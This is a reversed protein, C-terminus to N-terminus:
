SRTVKVTMVGSRDVKVVRITTGTKPVDVGYWGPQYRGTHEGSGHEDGPYWWDLTDDFVPQAAQGRLVIRESNLHTAQTSSRSTSFAADYAMTRPRLLSGDPAHRLVSNADVPLIEGSGPHDGVNNDTQSTDWYSILAGPDYKFFEVWNPRKDLFGFNYVNALLRDRGVYQRNDVFYANLFQQMESGTTTRFGDLEWGTEGEEATGITTGGLTVNDVQFGSLALAGDTRYRWRIATTGAPVTATLDVWAGDTTGSIGAGSDNLGSQDEEQYSESTGVPTWTEGDSTAELFAYDWGDEIEYRVKATLAGGGDVARTATNDLDNGSDSYFYREGCDACAAGLELPVEKDPLQVVLGNAQSGSTSQGPRLKFTGVRGPRVTDYDLWGLQFKDWASMPMPRDGIGPDGPATGRSQSMLTWFGTSNEAGGSNGSTDYEDPLDLDHAYEHAFTSLGGNESQITYDNVWVGTPNDPIQVAGNDSPGGEGINVGGIPAGGEPGTGFPQIQANWRHSWIADTGLTPDGDAEDGGAHVTQFHDIYGDPENLDGDEDFDYRDEQDFTKLYDQIRQMTWGADLRGQTWIAMADRILFWTNNCVNDGCANRGYRAENFPVKVWSTVDGDISYNNGSQQEFFKKMRSFYMNEFYARSYDKQWNTSNDKKRDPKPIQNHRPGDYTQPTGDSPNACAGEETSDCYASHRTNGFEALVVFVRDTGTQAVRGYVGQSLREVDGKGGTRLRQQVAADRVADYKARWPMTLSDGTSTPTAAQGAATDPASAAGAQPTTLSLATAAAILTATATAVVRTRRM